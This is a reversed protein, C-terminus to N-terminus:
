SKQLKLCRHRRAWHHSTGRHSKPPGIVHSSEKTAGLGAVLLDALQLTRKALQRRTGLESSISNFPLLSDTAALLNRAVRAHHTAIKPAHPGKLISEMVQTEWESYFHRREYLENRIDRYVDDVSEAFHQVSDFYALVRFLLFHRIRESAPAPCSAIEKEGAVIRRVIRDAHGLLLDEKTRFYLYLMSLTLGTERAAAEMSLHHYAGQALLRDVGDLVRNEIDLDRM